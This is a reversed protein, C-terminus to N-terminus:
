AGGSQVDNQRGHVGIMIMTKIGSQMYKLTLCIPRMVVATFSSLKKDILNM